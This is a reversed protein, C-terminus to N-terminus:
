DQVAELHERLVAAAAPRAREVAALIRARRAVPLDALARAFAPLEKRRRVLLPNLLDPVDRWRSGHGLQM